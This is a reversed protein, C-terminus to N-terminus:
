GGPRPRDQLFAASFQELHYVASSQASLGALALTETYVFLVAHGEILAPQWLFARPRLLDPPRQAELAKALASVFAGDGKTTPDCGDSIFYLAALEPTLKEVIDRLHGTTETQTAGGEPLIALDQAPVGKFGVPTHREPLSARAFLATATKAMAAILNTLASADEPVLERDLLEAFDARLAKPLKTIRHVRRESVDLALADGDKATFHVERRLVTETIETVIAAPIAQAGSAIRRGYETVDEPAASFAAIAQMFRGTDDSGKANM